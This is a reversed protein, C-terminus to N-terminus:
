KISKDLEVMHTHIKKSAAEWQKLDIHGSIILDKVYSVAFGSYRAQERNLSKSYTSMKKDNVPKVNTYTVGNNTNQSVTFEAEEGSKFYTQERKVSLYSATVDDYYIKHSYRTGYKTEIERVFETNRIVAKM